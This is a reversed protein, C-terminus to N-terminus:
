VYARMKFFYQFQKRTIDNRFTSLSEIIEESNGILREEYNWTMNKSHCRELHIPGKLPNYWEFMSVQVPRIERDPMPLLKFTKWSHIMFDGVEKSWVSNTIWNDRAWGTGKKLIKLKGFETRAGFISRLCAEYVFVDEFSKSKNYQLRCLDIAYSEDPFYREAIFFHIAGNDTGHFSDPLTTEYDAFDNLFKIAYPTNKVLYSGAMVEWNYFRDYFVIDFDKLVFEEIRRKPYVVGIDADLFLVVDFNRLIQAVICHRRFFQQFISHPQHSLPFCVDKQACNFDNEVALIYHYGHIKAYCKVTSIAIDYFSIQELTRVVSVIAIRQKEPVNYMITDGVIEYGVTKGNEPDDLVYQRRLAELEEDREKEKSGSGQFEVVIIFSALAVLGFIKLLNHMKGVDFRMRSYQM